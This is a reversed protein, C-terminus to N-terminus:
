ESFHDRSMRQRTVDEVLREDCRQVRRVFYESAEGLRALDCHLGEVSERLKRVEGVLEEFM